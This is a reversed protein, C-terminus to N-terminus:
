QMIKITACIFIAKFLNKPDSYNLFEWSFDWVLLMKWVAKVETSWSAFHECSFYFFWLLLTLISFTKCRQWRFLFWVFNVIVAVWCSASFLKHSSLQFNLFFNFINYRLPVLLKLLQGLMMWNRSFLALLIRM